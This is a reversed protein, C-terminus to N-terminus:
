YMAENDSIVTIHPAGRAPKGPFIKRMRSLLRVANSNKSQAQQQVLRVLAEWRTMKKKRGGETEFEIKENAVKRFLYTASVPESPTKTKRSM